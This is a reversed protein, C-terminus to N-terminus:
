KMLNVAYAMARDKIQAGPGFWASNLRKDDKNDGRPIKYYDVYEVVANYAWWATGRIEPNQLGRGTDLLAEVKEYERRVPAYIDEMPVMYDIALAAKLMLPVQAAPLMLNAMANYLQEQEEFYKGAIGLVDCAEQVKNVMNKTHRAYFKTAANSEAMRLTNWCVVNIPTFFIEVAGTGDHTNKLLLYEDVQTNKVTMYKPLKALIWIVAGLKLSGATHYMAAKTGVIDDFFKFANRNQLPNYRGKVISYVRNDTVRSLAFYDPVIVEIGAGTNMKLPNIEVEWNLGAANIAEESTAVADLKTGLGHWPTEGVYMMTEVNAPM